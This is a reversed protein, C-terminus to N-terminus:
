RPPSRAAGRRPGPESRLCRVGPPAPSRRGPTAPARGAVKVAVNVLTPAHSGDPCNRDVDCRAPKGRGFDLGKECGVVQGVCRRIRPHPQRLEGIHGRGEPSIHPPRERRHLRCRCRQEIPDVTVAVTDRHGQPERRQAQDHRRNMLSTGGRFWARPPHGFLQAHVHVRQQIWAVPRNEVHPTSAAVAYEAVHPRRQLLGLTTLQELALLVSWVSTVVALMLRIRLM